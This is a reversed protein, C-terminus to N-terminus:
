QNRRWGDFNDRREVDNLSLRDNFGERDDPIPVKVTKAPASCHNAIRRQHATLLDKVDVPKHNDLAWTIVKDAWPDHRLNQLLRVILAVKPM